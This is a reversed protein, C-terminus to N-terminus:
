THALKAMLPQNSCRLANSGSWVPSREVMTSCSV